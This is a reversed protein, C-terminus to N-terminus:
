SFPNEKGSQCDKKQGAANRGDAPLSSRKRILNHPQKKLIHDDFFFGRMVYSIFVFVHPYVLNSKEGRAVTLFLASLGSIEVIRHEVAIKRPPCSKVTQLQM